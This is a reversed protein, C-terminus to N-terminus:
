FKSELAIYTIHRRISHINSGSQKVFMSYTRWSKEERNFSGLPKGDWKSYVVLAKGSNEINWVIDGGGGSEGVEHGIVRVEKGEEINQLCVNKVGAEPRSHKEESLWFAM